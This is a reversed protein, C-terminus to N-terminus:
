NKSNEEAIVRLPIVQIQGFGFYFCVNIWEINLVELDIKHKILSKLPHSKGPSGNEDVIHVASNIENILM